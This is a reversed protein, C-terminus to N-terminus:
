PVGSIIYDAFNRTLELAFHKSQDELFKLMQDKVKEGDRNLVRQLGIQPDIDLWIIKTFYPRFKKQASGVGELILTNAPSLKVIQDFKSLEWNFKAFEIPSNNIAPDLIQDIISLTLKDSFPEHWGDYLDDMNIVQCNSIDSRLRNALTTKGSGAVGDIAFIKVKKAAQNLISDLLAPYTTM